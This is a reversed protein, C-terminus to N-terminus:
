SSPAIPIGYELNAMGYGRSFAIEGEEMVSVACGPSRTNDMSAFVADVREEVSSEQNSGEQAAAPAWMLATLLAAAISRKVQIRM